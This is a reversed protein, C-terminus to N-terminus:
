RGAWGLGSKVESPAMGLSIFFGSIDHESRMDFPTKAFSAIVTGFKFKRAFHINQMMRGLYVSKEKASAGLLGSFNFGVAVGKDKAIVSLIHNLGSARHHIFDKRGAYELNFIVDPKDKEMVQRILNQDDPASVFTLLRGKYRKVDEPKCIIGVIIRLKTGKQFAATDSPVDYV